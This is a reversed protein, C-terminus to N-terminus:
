GERESRLVLWFLPGAEVCSDFKCFGGWNLALLLFVIKWCEKPYICSECMRTTAVWCTSLSELSFMTKAKFCCRLDQRWVLGRSWSKGWVMIQKSLYQLGGRSGSQGKCLPTSCGTIEFTHLPFGELNQCVGCLLVCLSRTHACLLEECVGVGWSTGANPQMGALMSPQASNTHLWKDLLGLQWFNLFVAAAMVFGCGFSTASDWCFWAAFVSAHSVMGGFLVAQLVLHTVQFPPLINLYIPYVSRSTEPYVCTVGTLWLGLNGGVGFAWVVWGKQLSITTLVVIFRLFPM